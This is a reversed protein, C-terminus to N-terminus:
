TNLGADRLRCLTDTLSLKSIHAVYNLEASSLGHIDITPFTQKILRFLREYYDIKLKPNLGGQILIERGGLDVLERCKDLVEADTLTYGEEHGPVRYFACFKCRVWCVNTYNINRGINFTVIRNPHKRQRVTDALAALLPLDTCQFLALGDEFSLREGAWVKEAVADVDPNRTLTAVPMVPRRPVRRRRPPTLVKRVMGPTASRQRRAVM